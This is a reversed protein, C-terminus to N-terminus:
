CCAARADDQRRGNQKQGEGESPRQQAGTHPATAEVRGSVDIACGDSGKGVNGLQDSPGRHARGPPFYAVPPSRWPAQSAARGEM